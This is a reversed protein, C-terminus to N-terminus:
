VTQLLTDGCGLSGSKRLRVLLTTERKDEATFKGKM